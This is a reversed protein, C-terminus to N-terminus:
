DRGTWYVDADAWADVGYNKTSEKYFRIVAPPLAEGFPQVKLGVALDFSTVPYSYHTGNFVSAYGVVFEEGQEIGGFQKAPTFM